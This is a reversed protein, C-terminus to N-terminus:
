SWKVNWLTSYRCMQPTTPDKTTTNNCMKEQNQCHFLKSFRNVNSATLAYWFVTSNKPGDQILCKDRFRESIARTYCHSWVTKGAVWLWVRVMGAKVEWSSYADGGKPQYENRRGVFLHGPQTSRPPQDCVSIFIGRRSNSGYVTVWGLVLRARRLNVENIHAISNGSLWAAQMTLVSNSVARPMLYLCSNRINRYVNSPSMFLQESPWLKLDAKQWSYLFHEHIGKPTHYTVRLFNNHTAFV